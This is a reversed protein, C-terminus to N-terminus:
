FNIATGALVVTAKYHGRTGKTGTASTTNSVYTSKAGPNIKVYTAEIYPVVGSAVKYHAGLSLAQVKVYSNPTTTTTSLTKDSALSDFYTLSSTMPGNEYAVGLNFQRSKSGTSKDGVTGAATDAGVVNSIRGSKGNSGYGAAFKVKGFGLVTGVNYSRLNHNTTRVGNATHPNASYINTGMDGVAAIDFTMNDREMSYSVGGSLINKYLNNGLADFALGNASVTPSNGTNAGDPAFSLGLQLGNVKPSYYSVKRTEEVNGLGNIFTKESMMLYTVGNTSRAGSVEAGAVEAGAVNLNNATLATAANVDSGLRVYNSWNGDSAGGSAAAITSAGLAM